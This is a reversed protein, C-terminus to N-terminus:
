NGPARQPNAALWAQITDDRVAAFMATAKRAELKVASGADNQIARKVSRRCSTVVALYSMRTTGPHVLKLGLGSLRVVDDSNRDRADTEGPHTSPPPTQLSRGIDDNAGQREHHEAWSEGGARGDHPYLASWSGKNL